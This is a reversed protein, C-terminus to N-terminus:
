PGAAAPKAAGKAAAARATRRRALSQSAGSPSGARRATAGAAGIALGAPEAGPVFALVAGAGELAGGAAHGAGSGQLGGAALVLLGVFFAFGGAALAAGGILARGQGYSLICGPTGVVPLQPLSWICDSPSLLGTTSVGSGSSGPVNSDPTTSSNLFQKYAGSAYTGWPSFSQGAGNFKAVAQQANVGADYINAVPMSHTGNSIQWLGWSSQTGGNDDPNLATSCGGSEAEAIAAAVPALVKPGGANIWLGELQAYTYLTGTGGLGTCSTV